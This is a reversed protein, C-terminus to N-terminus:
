ASERKEQLRRNYEASITQHYDALEERKCALQFALSNIERRLAQINELEDATPVYGFM